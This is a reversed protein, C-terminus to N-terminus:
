LRPYWLCRRQHRERCSGRSTIMVSSRTIFRPKAQPVDVGAAGVRLGFTARGDLGPESFVRCHAIDYFGPFVDRMLITDEVALRLYHVVV